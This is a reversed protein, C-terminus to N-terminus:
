MELGQKNWSVTTNTNSTSYSPLYEYRVITSQPRTVHCTCLYKLSLSLLKFLSVVDYKLTYILFLLFSLTFTINLCTRTVVRATCFCSTNCIRLTQRCVKNDLVSRAHAHAHARIISDDTADRVRGHKEVNDWLRFSKRSL